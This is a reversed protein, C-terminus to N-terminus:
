HVYFRALFGFIMHKIGHVNQKPETSSMKFYPIISHITTHKLHVKKVFANVFYKKIANKRFLLPQNYKHCMNNLSFLLPGFLMFIIYKIEHVIENVPYKHNSENLKRMKFAIEGRM